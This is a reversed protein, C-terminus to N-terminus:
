KQFNGLLENKQLLARYAAEYHGLAGAVSESDNLVNIAFIPDCDTSKIDELLESLLTAARSNNRALLSLRANLHKRFLTSTFKMTDYIAAALDYRTNKTVHLMYLYLYYEIKEDYLRGSSTTLEPLKNERAREIAALHYESEEILVESHYLTHRAAAIAQRFFHEASVLHGRRYTEKGLALFSSAEIFRLEDDKQLSAIRELCQAYQGSRYAERVSPMLAIKLYPFADDVEDLFYGASVGLKKAIHQLTPLSPLAAGNEIRSLMNRTVGGECIATQTMGRALRLAKIKEGITM